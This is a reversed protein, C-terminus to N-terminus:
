QLDESVLEEIEKFCKSYKPGSYSAIDRIIDQVREEGEMNAPNEETVSSRRSDGSKNVRFKGQRKAGHQIFLRALEVWRRRNSDKNQSNEEKTCYSRDEKICKGKFLLYGESLVAEWITCGQAIHFENIMGHDTSGPSQYLGNPDAGAELLIEASRPDPVKRSFAVFHVGVFQLLEIGSIPGILFLSLLSQIEAYQQHARMEEVKYKVFSVLGAQIAYHLFHQRVLRGSEMPELTPWPLDDKLQPQNKIDDGGISYRAHRTLFIYKGTKDLEELLTMYAQLGEGLKDSESAYYMADSILVYVDEHLAEARMPVLRTEKFLKLRRICGSLLDLTLPLDELSSTHSEPRTTNFFSTWVYDRTLYEKATQHMFTVMGSDAELLGVCRSRLRKKLREVQPHIAIEHTRFMPDEVARVVDGNMHGQETLLLTIPELPNVARLVLKFLHAAEDVYDPKITELMRAYLGQRGGLRKPVSDLIKSLDNGDAHGQVLMDVVLRVWLFVGQAKDTIESVLRTRDEIDSAEKKLRADCYASIPGTTYIHVRIRPFVSFRQEFASLERSSLCIKINEYDSIRHFLDAVERHGDSIWRSTGWQADDGPADFLMDFDDETYQEQRDVIRYEDLGDVFLCLKSSGLSKLVTIFAKELQTWALWNDARHLAEFREPFARQILDRRTTLIQCLLSRIMGERSKQINNGRDYFYFVAVILLPSPCWKKLAEATREHRALYKMLTSKGCAAKGSVWLVGSGHSLWSLFEQGDTSVDNTSHTTVSWFWSCSEPHERDIIDERQNMAEFSLMRLVELYM